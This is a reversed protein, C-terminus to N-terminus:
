ESPHLCVFQGHCLLDLLVITCVVWAISLIPLLAVAMTKRQSSGKRFLDWGKKYSLGFAFPYSAVSLALSVTLPSSKSGPADFLM